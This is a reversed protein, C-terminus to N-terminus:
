GGYTRGNFSFVGRDFVPIVGPAVRKGDVFLYGFGSQWNAVGPFDLYSGARKIDGLWGAELAFRTRNTTEYIVGLRHTHGQIIGRDPNHRLLEKRASMGATTALLKGHICSVGPAATWPQVKPYKVGFEDLKMLEAVSPVVDRLAPAYANVYAKLRDEHNGTVWVLEAQGAADRLSRWFEVGADAEDRVSNCYEAATGKSWRAPAKMDLLDGVQIVRDPQVTAIMTFINNLARKDEYPLHIDPLIITLGNV